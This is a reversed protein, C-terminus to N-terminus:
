FKIKFESKVKLKLKFNVKLSLKLSMNPNMITIDFSVLPGRYLDVSCVVLYIINMLLLNLKRCSLFKQQM